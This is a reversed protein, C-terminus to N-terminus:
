TKVPGPLKKMTKIIHARKEMVWKDLLRHGRKRRIQPSEDKGKLTGLKECFAPSVVYEGDSLMVPTGDAVGGKFLRIAGGTAASERFAPPPRPAGSRGSGRPLSTGYPGSSFMADAVRAGALSNGEGLGAVVDAPLVYSGGPATTNVSDARGPTTGHLFGSDAGRAEARTWWPSGQSASIGGAAARRLAGGARLGQPQMDQQGPPPIAPQQQPQAQQQAPPQMRKQQLVRQAMQGQQSPGLRAVLEQLQEPSMGAYRQIMNQSLPNMTSASPTPGGIGANGTIGGGDDRYM